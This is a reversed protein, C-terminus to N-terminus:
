LARRDVIQDAFVDGSLLANRDPLVAAHLHQAGIRASDAASQRAFFPPLIAIFFVTPCVPLSPASRAGDRRLKRFFDAAAPPRVRSAPAPTPSAMAAPGSLRGGLTGSHIFV